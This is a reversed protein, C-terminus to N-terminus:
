KSRLKKSRLKNLLDICSFEIMDLDEPRVPEHDLLAHISECARVFNRANKEIDTSLM